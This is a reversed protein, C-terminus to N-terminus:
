MEPLAIIDSRFFCWCIIMRWSHWEEQSWIGNVSCVLLTSFYGLLGHYEKQVRERMDFQNIDKLHSWVKLTLPQLCLCHRHLKDLSWYTVCSGPEAPPLSCPDLDEFLAHSLDIWVLWSWLYKLMNTWHAGIANKDRVSIQVAAVSIWLLCCSIRWLITIRQLLWRDLCM